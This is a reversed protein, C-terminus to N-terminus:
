CSTSFARASPISRLRDSCSSRTDSAAEPRPRRLGPLANRAEHTAIQIPFVIQLSGADSSTLRINGLHGAAQPSCELIPASGVLIEAVPAGLDERLNM